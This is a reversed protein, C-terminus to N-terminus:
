TPLHCNNKGKWSFASHIVAHLSVYHCTHIHWPMYSHTMACIFSARSFFEYRQVFFHHTQCRTPIHWPAYSHTMSCIFSDHCIHILWIVYPHTMNCIFSDPWMHILWTVFTLVILQCRNTSSCYSKTPERFQVFLARKWLICSPPLSPYLILRSSFFQWIIATIPLFHPWWLACAFHHCHHPLSLLHRSNTPEWFQLFLPSKNWFLSLSAMLSLICSPPMIATTPYHYALSIGVILVMTHNLLSGLEGFYPEKEFFVQCRIFGVLENCGM